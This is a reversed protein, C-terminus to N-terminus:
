LEEKILSIAYLNMEGLLEPNVDSRDFIMYRRNVKSVIRKWTECIKKNHQMTEKEGYGHLFKFVRLAQRLPQTRAQRCAKEDDLRMQYEEIMCIDLGDMINMTEM